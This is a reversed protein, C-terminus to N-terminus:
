ADALVQPAMAEAGGGGVIQEVRERLEGPAVHPRRKPGEELLGAHGQQARPAHAVLAARADLQALRAVQRDARLALAIAGPLDRHAHAIAPPALDLLAALEDGPRFRAERELARAGVPDHRVRVRGAVVAPRHLALVDRAQHPAAPRAQV